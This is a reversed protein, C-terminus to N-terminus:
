CGSVLLHKGHATSGSITKSLRETLYQMYTTVVEFALDLLRVNPCIDAWTVDSTAIEIHANNLLEVETGILGWENRRVEREYKAIWAMREADSDIAIGRRVGEESDVILASLLAAGTVGGIEIDTQAVKLYHNEYRIQENIIYDELM